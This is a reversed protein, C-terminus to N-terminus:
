SNIRPKVFFFFVVRGLKDNTKIVKVKCGLQAEGYTLISLSLLIFCQINLVNEFQMSQYIM